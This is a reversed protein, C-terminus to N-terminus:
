ERPGSGSETDQLPVRLLHLLLELFPPSSFIKRALKLPHPGQQLQVLGGLGADQFFALVWRGVNSQEGTPSPITASGRCGKKCNDFDKTSVNRRSPVLRRLGQLPSFPSSRVTGLM